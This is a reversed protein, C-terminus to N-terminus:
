HSVKLGVAEGGEFNSKFNPRVGSGDWGKNEDNSDIKKVKGPM